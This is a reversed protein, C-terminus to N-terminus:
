LLSYVMETPTGFGKTGSTAWGGSNGGLLFGITGGTISGTVTYPAAATVQSGANLIGAPSLYVNKNATIPQLYSPLGTMTFNTSNSTGQGGLILLIVQNGNRTWKVTGTASGGSFGTFTGTFSSSDPTMDVIASAIPGRGGINGSADIIWRQTWGSNYQWIETQNGSSQLVTGSTSGNTLSLNAGNSLSNATGAVTRTVQIDNVAGTSSPNIQVPVTGALGDVTFATGFSPALITITGSNGIQMGTNPLSSNAIIQQTGGTNPIPILHLTGPNFSSYVLFAGNSGGDTGTVWDAGNWGVNYGTYTLNVVSDVEGIFVGLGPTVGSLGNGIFGNSLAYGNVTINNNFTNTGAFTNAGALSAADLSATHIASFEGDLYAGKIVKNPDTNGLTDRFTYTLVPTYVAM